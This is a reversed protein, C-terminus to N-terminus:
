LAAPTFHNPDTQLPQCYRDLFHNALGPIDKPVGRLSPTQIHIVKLRYYLDKRFTHEKIAAELNKNTAATV